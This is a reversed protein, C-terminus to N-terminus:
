EQELFYDMFGKKQLIFKTFKEKKQIWTSEANRYDTEKRNM